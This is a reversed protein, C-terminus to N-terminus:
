LRPLDEMSQLLQSIGGHVYFIVSNIICCIPLHAFVGIFANYYKLTAREECEMRFGYEGTMLQSEHNGRLLFIRSPLLVKLSLLITLVEMGQRGLDVYDGLFLYGITPPCALSEFIRILDQINGHIHGCVVFEGDIRIVAPEKDLVPIVQKCM